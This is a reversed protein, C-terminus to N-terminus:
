RISVFRCSSSRASSPRASPTQRARLSPPPDPACLSPSTPPPSPRTSTLVPAASHPLAPAIRRSNQACRATAPRRLWKLSRLPLSLPLSTPLLTLLKVPRGVWLAWAHGRARRGVKTFKAHDGRLDAAVLSSPAATWRDRFQARLAANSAAEEDLASTVQPNLRSPPYSLLCM